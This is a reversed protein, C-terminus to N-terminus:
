LILPGSEHAVQEPCKAVQNQGTQDLEPLGLLTRKEHLLSDWTGIKVGLLVQRFEGLSM